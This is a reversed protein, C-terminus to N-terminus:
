SAYIVIAGLVMPVIAIVRFILLPQNEYWDLIRRTREPGLAIILLGALLFLIGFAIIVKPYKCELAGVFFVIALAIRILAALYIRKGRKIFNILWKMIDPRLLFVFGILVFVIGLSKIVIDM